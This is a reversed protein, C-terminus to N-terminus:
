CLLNRQCLVLISTATVLIRCNLIQDFEPHFDESSKDNTAEHQIIKMTWMRHYVLTQFVLMQSVYKVAKNANNLPAIAEM